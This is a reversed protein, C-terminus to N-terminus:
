IDSKEVLYLKRCHCCKMHPKDRGDMEYDMPERCLCHDCAPPSYLAYSHNIMCGWVGCYPCHPPEGIAAAMSQAQSM